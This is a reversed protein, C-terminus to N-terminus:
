VSPFVFLTTPVYYPELASIMERIKMGNVMEQQNINKYKAATVHCWFVCDVPQKRDFGVDEAKSNQYQLDYTSLFVPSEKM